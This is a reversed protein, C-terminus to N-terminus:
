AKFAAVIQEAQPAVARPMNVVSTILHLSDIDQMLMEVQQQNCAMQFSKLDFRFTLGNEDIKYDAVLNSYHQKFQECISAIGFFDQKLKTPFSVFESV